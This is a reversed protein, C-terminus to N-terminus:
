SLSQRHEVQVPKSGVKLRSALVRSDRGARDDGVDDRGNARVPRRREGVQMGFAADPGVRDRDEARDARLAGPQVLPRGVPQREPPFLGPDRIAREARHEPVLELVCPAPLQGSRAEELGIVQQPACHSGRAAM